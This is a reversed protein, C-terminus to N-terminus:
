RRRFATSTSFGDSHARSHDPARHAHDVVYAAVERLGHDMENGIRTGLSAHTWILFGVMGRIARKRWKPAALASVAVARTAAPLRDAAMAAGPESVADRQIVERLAGLQEPPVFLLKRTFSAISVKALLDAQKKLSEVVAEVMPFAIMAEHQRLHAEAAAIVPLITTQRHRAAQRLYADAATLVPAITTERLQANAAAITVQRLQANAAAVVPAYTADKIQANAAASIDAAARVAPSSSLGATVSQSMKEVAKVLGLDFAFGDPGDGVTM